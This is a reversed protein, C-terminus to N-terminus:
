NCQLDNPSQDNDPDPLKIAAELLKGYDDVGGQFLLMIKLALRDAEPSGQTINSKRCADEFVAKL